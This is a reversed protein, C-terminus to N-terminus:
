DDLYESISEIGRESLSDFEKNAAPSSANKIRRKKEKAWKEFAIEKLLKEMLETYKAPVIFAKIKHSRKDIVKVIEESGTILSPNTIIKKVGYEVM